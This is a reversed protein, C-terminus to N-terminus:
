PSGGLYRLANSISFLAVICIGILIYTIRTRQVQDTLRNLKRFQATVNETMLFALPIVVAPFWSGMSIVVGESVVVSQPIHGLAALTAVAALLGYGIVVGYTYNGYGFSRSFWYLHVAM